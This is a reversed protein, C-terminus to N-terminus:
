EDENKSKLVSDIKEKLEAMADLTSEHKDDFEALKKLINDHNEELDKIRNLIHDQTDSTKKQRNYIWWSIIGGIIAGATIGLYASASNSMDICGKQLEPVCGWLYLLSPIM